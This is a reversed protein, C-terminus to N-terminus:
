LTQPNKAVHQLEQRYAELRDRYERENFVQNIHFIKVGGAVFIPKPGQQWSYSQHYRENAFFCGTSELYRAVFPFSPSRLTDSLPDYPVIDHKRKRRDTPIEKPAEKFLKEMFEKTIKAGRTEQWHYIDKDKEALEPLDNFDFQLAGFYYPYRYDYNRTKWDLPFFMIGTKRAISLMRANPGDGFFRSAFNGDKPIRDFNHEAIVENAAKEIELAYRKVDERVEPPLLESLIQIHGMEEETLEVDPIGQEYPKVRAEAYLQSTRSISRRVNLPLVSGLFAFRKGLAGSLENFANTYATRVAPETYEGIGPIPEAIRSKAREM